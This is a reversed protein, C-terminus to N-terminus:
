GERLGERKSRSEPTFAFGSVWGKKKYMSEMAEVM